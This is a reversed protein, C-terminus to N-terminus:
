SVHADTEGQASAANQSNPHQVFKNQIWEGEFHNASGGATRDVVKPESEVSDPLVVQGAEVGQGSADVAIRRTPLVGRVAGSPPAEASLREAPIVTLTGVVISIFLSVQHTPGLGLLPPGEHWIAAIAM